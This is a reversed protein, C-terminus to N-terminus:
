GNGNRGEHCSKCCEFENHEQIDDTNYEVGVGCSVCEYVNIM